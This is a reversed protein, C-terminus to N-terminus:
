ATRLSPIAFGKPLKSLANVWFQKAIVDYRPDLMNSLHLTLAAGVSLITLRAAIPNRNIWRDCFESLLEGDETHNIEYFVIDVVLSLWKHAADNMLRALVDQPARPPM